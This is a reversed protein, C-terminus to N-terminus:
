SNRANWVEVYVECLWLVCATWTNRNYQEIFQVLVARARDRVDPDAHRLLAIVHEADAHTIM